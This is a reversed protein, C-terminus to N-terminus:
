SHEESLLHSLAIVAAWSPNQEGFMQDVWFQHIQGTTAHVAYWSELGEADEAKRHFHNPNFLLEWGAAEIILTADSSRARPTNLNIPKQKTNM